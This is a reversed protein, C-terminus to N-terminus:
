RVGSATGIRGGVARPPEVRLKWRGSPAYILASAAHPRSMSATSSIGAAFRARPAWGGASLSSM